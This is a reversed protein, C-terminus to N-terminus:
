ADVHLSLAISPIDDFMGFSLYWGLPLLDPDSPLTFRAEGAVDVDPGSARM